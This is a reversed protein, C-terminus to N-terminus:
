EQESPQSSKAKLMSQRVAERLDPSLYKFIDANDCPLSSDLRRAEELDAIGDEFFGMELQLNGRNLFLVASDSDLALAKTYCRLAEERDGNEWCALAIMGEYEAKLQDRRKQLGAIEANSHKLEIDDILQDFEEELRETESRIEERVRQVEIENSQTQESLDAALMSANQDTLIKSDAEPLFNSLSVYLDRLLDITDADEGRYMAVEACDAIAGLIDGPTTHLDSESRSEFNEVTAASLVRCYKRVDRAGEGYDDSFKEFAKKAVTNTDEIQRRAANRWREIAEHLNKSVHARTEFASPEDQEALLIPDDMVVWQRIIQSPRMGMASKGANSVVRCLVVAGVTGVLAGWAGNVAAFLGFILFIGLGNSILSLLAGLFAAWKGVTQYLVTFAFIWLWILWLSAILYLVVGSARRTSRILLLIVAIPLFLTSGGSVYMVPLAIYTGAADEAGFAVLAMYIVGILIALNLTNNTVLIQWRSAYFGRTQPLGIVNFGEKASHSDPLFM